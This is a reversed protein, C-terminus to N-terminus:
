FRVARLQNTKINLKFIPKAYITKLLSPNYIKYLKSNPKRFM